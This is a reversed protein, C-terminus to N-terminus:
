ARKIIKNAEALLNKAVHEQAAKHGSEYANAIMHRGPVFTGDAIYGSELRLVYWAGKASRDFEIKHGVEGPKPNKWARLKIAKQARGSVKPTASRAAAHMPKLGARTTRKAAKRFAGQEAKGLQDLMKLVYDGGEVTMAKMDDSAIRLGCEAISDGPPWTCSWNAANSTRFPVWM